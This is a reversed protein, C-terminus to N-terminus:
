TLRTAGSGPLQRAEAPQDPESPEDGKHQMKAAAEEAMKAARDQLVQAVLVVGVVGVAMWIRPRKVGRGVLFQEAKADAKLGIGSTVLTLGGTVAALAGATSGASAGKGGLRGALLAPSGTPDASGGTGLLMSAGTGATNTALMSRRLWKPFRAPRLLTVAGAAGAAALNKALPSSLFSSKTTSM